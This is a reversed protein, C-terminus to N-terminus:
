KDVRYNLAIEGNFFQKAILLNPKNYTKIHAFLSVREFLSRTVFETAMKLKPQVLPQSPGSAIYFFGHAIQSM